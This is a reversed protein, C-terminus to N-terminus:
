RCHRDNGTIRMASARCWRQVMSAGDASPASPMAVQLCQSRAANRPQPMAAMRYGALAACLARPQVIMGSAISPTLRTGANRPLPKAPYRRRSSNKNLVKRSGHDRIAPMSLPVMEGYGELTITLSPSGCRPMAPRVMAAHHLYRWAGGFCLLIVMLFLSNVRCWRFCPAAHHFM